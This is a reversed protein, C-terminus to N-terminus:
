HVRPWGRGLITGKRKLALSLYFPPPPSVSHKNNGWGMGGGRGGGLVEKTAVFVDVLQDVWLLIQNFLLDGCGVHCFPVLRCSVSVSAVQATRYTFDLLQTQCFM